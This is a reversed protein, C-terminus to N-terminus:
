WYIEREFLSILEEEIGKEEMKALIYMCTLPGTGSEKLAKNLLEGTKKLARVATRLTVIPRYGSLIMKSVVFPVNSLALNRLACPVEVFGMLPDCALGQIAQLAISAADLVMKSRVKPEQSGALLDVIASAAMALSVGIEAQCGHLSGSLSMNNGIFGGILGGVYIGNTIEEISLGFEEMAARLVAPFVSSAGGTPASVVIEMESNRVAVNLAYSLVRSHLDDNSFGKMPIEHRLFKSYRLSDPPSSTSNYMVDWLERIIRRSETIISSERYAVYEGVTGEKVEKLIIEDANKLFEAGSNIDKKSFPLKDELHNLTDASLYIWIPISESFLNALVDKMNNEINPINLIGGGISDFLANTVGYTLELRWAIDEDELSSFAVEFSHTLDYEKEDEFTRKIESFVQRGKDSFYAGLLGLILARISRHGIFSYMTKSPNKCSIVIRLKEKLLDLTIDQGLNALYNRFIYGMVLPAASHSSSPGVIPKMVQHVTWVYSM